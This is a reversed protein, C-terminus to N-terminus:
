AGLFAQTGMQASPHDKQLFIVAYNSGNNTIKVIRWGDNVYQELEQGLSECNSDSSISRRIVKVQAM